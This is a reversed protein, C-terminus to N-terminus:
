LLRVWVMKQVVLLRNHSTFCISSHNLELDNVTYGVTRYIEKSEGTMLSENCETTGQIILGDTPIDEGPLIKLYDGRRILQGPIQEENIIRGTSDLQVLTGKPSHLSM